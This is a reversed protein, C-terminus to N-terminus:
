ALADVSRLYAMCFQGAFDVFASGLQSVYGIRLETEKVMDDGTKGDPIEWLMRAMLTDQIEDALDFRWDDITQGLTIKPNLGRAVRVRYALAKRVLKNPYHFALNHRVLMVHKLYEPWGPRGELCDALRVFSAQAHADCLDRVGSLAPSQEIRKILAMAENLHGCMMRFYYRDSIGSRATQEGEGAKRAAVNAFALDNAAMMVAIVIAGDQGQAKLRDLKIFQTRTAGM